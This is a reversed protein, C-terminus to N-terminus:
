IVEIVMDPKREIVELEGCSGMVRILIEFYRRMGREM